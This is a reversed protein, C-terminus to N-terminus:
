NKTTQVVDIDGLFIDFNEVKEGEIAKDYAKLVVAITKDTIDEYVVKGDKIGKFRQRFKIYGYYNGDPAKRLNSTYQCEAWEIEIRDYNLARVRELYTKTPFKPKTDRNVSSVQVSTNGYFLKLANKIADLAEGSSTGKNGIKNLYDQFMNVKMMGKAQFAALEDASFVRVEEKPEPKEFEMEVKSTNATPEPPTPAKVPEPQPQPSSKNESVPQPMAESKVSPPSPMTEAKSPSPAPVAEQPTSAVPAQVGDTSGSLAKVCFYMEEIYKDQGFQFAQELTKTAASYDKNIISACAEHILRNWNENTTERNAVADEDCKCKKPGGAYLFDSALLVFILVKIFSKM